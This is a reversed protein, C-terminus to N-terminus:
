EVVLRQFNALMSIGIEAIHRPITEVIDKHARQKVDVALDDVTATEGNNQLQAEKEFEAQFRIGSFLCLVDM